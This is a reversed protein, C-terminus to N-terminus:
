TIFKLSQFLWISKGKFNREQDVERIEEKLEEIWDKGENEQEFVKLEEKLEEIWDKGEGKQEVVKIEENALVSQGSILIASLNIIKLILLIYKGM